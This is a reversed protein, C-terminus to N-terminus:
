LLGEVRLTEVDGVVRVGDKRTIAGDLDIKEIWSRRMWERRNVQVVPSPASQTGPMTRYDCGTWDLKPEVPEVPEDERHLERLLQWARILEVDISRTM